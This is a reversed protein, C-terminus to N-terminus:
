ESYLEAAILPVVNPKKLDMVKAGLNALVTAARAPTYPAIAASSWKGFELALRPNQIFQAMYEALEEHSYPDFIFGNVGHRVMERSGAYQSCLVPKGFAMAELLVLGWTDEYTPFVFVDCARYYAGLNQYGVQGVLHVFGELGHSSIQQQLDKEQEGTGVIILSFSDLGRRRLISAAKILSSWGKRPIISGVFLFAPHQIGKPSIEDVGSCLLSPEPVEYPHHLLKSNPVSLVDRLYEIGMRMNSISADALAAM